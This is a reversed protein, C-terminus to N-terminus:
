NCGCRVEMNNRNIKLQTLLPIPDLYDEMMTRLALNLQLQREM